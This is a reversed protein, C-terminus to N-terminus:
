NRELLFAGGQGGGICLTALGRNLNRRRMELLLTLILRGGTAGVPHGLAIAGGNVNLIDDSLEGLEKKRGLKETCYSKSAFARQNAMVQAAFAENLEVLQVESLDMGLGDLLMATSYTPGMGMRKPDCGSFAYGSILGLIERGESKAKAENMLVLAVAGDTIPCANGATITGNERDFFPKLKGLQEMTQGERPGIDTALFDDYDPELPVAVIEEDFKGEKQAAVVRLHSRLAFEDQERRTLHFDRALVEATQGMNLGSIPDTLGEMIAVKPKLWKPRVETLKQVKEVPSKAFSLTAFLETMEDGYILPMNSMSETGGVLMTDALGVGIKLCGQAVAEMASACNRHVTYASVSEPVGARLAMVRSINAADAPTGANGFVVEDIAATDLDARGIAEKMAACGLHVASCYKMKTGAKAFPTRVGAVIAVRSKQEKANWVKVM